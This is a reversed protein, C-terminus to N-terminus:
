KPFYPFYPFILHTHRFMFKGVKYKLKTTGTGLAQYLESGNTVFINANLGIRLVNEEFYESVLRSHNTKQILWTNTMLESQAGFRQFLSKIFIPEPDLMYLLAGHLNTLKSDEIEKKFIDFRETIAVFEEQQNDTISTSVLILHKYLKLNLFRELVANSHIRQIGIVALLFQLIKTQCKM